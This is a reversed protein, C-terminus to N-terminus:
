RGGVCGCVVCGAMKLLSCCLGNADVAVVPVSVYLVLADNFTTSFPRCTCLSRACVEEIAPPEQLREAPQEAGRRARTKPLKAVEIPLSVPEDEKVM